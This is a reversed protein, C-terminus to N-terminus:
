PRVWIMEGEDFSAMAHPAAIRAANRVAAKDRAVCSVASGDSDKFTIGAPRVGRTLMGCTIATFALRRIVGAEAGRAAVLGYNVETSGAGTVEAVFLPEHEVAMGLVRMPPDDKDDGVGEMRWAGDGARAVRVWELCSKAEPATVAPDDACGTQQLAWLGEALVFGPAQDGPAFLPSPASLVACGALFALAAGLVAARM